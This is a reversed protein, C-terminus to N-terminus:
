VVHLLFIKQTISRKKIWIGGQTGAMYSQGGSIRYSLYTESFEHFLYFFFFFSLCFVGYYILFKLIIKKLFYWFCARRHYGTAMPPTRRSDDL